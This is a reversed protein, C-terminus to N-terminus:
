EVLHIAIYPHVMCIVDHFCYLGMLLVIVSVLVIM